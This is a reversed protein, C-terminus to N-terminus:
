IRDTYLQEPSAAFVRKAAPSIRQRPLAGLFKLARGNPSNHDDLAALHLTTLFVEHEDSGRDVRAWDTELGANPADVREFGAHGSGRLARAM